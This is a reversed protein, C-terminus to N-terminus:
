ESSAAMPASWAGALYSPSLTAISLPSSAPSLSLFFPLSLHSLKHTLSHVCPALSLPSSPSALPPLWLSPCTTLCTISLSQALAACYPHSQALMAASSGLNQSTKLERSFHLLLGCLLERSAPPHTNSKCASEEALGRQQQQVLRRVMEVQVGDDPQLLVEAPGPLLGEDDDGVIAGEEVVDAGPVSESKKSKIARPNHIEREVREREREKIHYCGRKEQKTEVALAGRPLTIASPCM